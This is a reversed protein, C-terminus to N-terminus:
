AEFMAKAQDEDFDSELQLDEVQTAMRALLSDEVLSLDIWRLGVLGILLDSCSTPGAKVCKDLSAIWEMAKKREIKPKKNEQAMTGVDGKM